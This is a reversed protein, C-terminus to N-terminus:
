GGRFAVVLAALAWIVAALARLFQPTLWRRNKRMARKM